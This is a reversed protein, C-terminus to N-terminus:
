RKAFYRDFKKQETFYVFLWLKGNKLVETIEFITNLDNNLLASIKYIKKDKNTNELIIKLGNSLIM